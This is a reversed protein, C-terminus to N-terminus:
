QQSFKWPSAAFQITQKRHSLNNKAETISLPPRAPVSVTRSSEFM